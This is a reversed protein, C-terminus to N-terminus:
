DRLLARYGRQEFHRDHTLAEAIQRQDMVVFLACDTLSWNKDPRNQYLTLADRFLEPSQPVAEIEPDQIVARVLEAAKTRLYNGCEAFGNLVEVLVMETTVIRYEGFQEAIPTARAHLRDRSNAIAVWYGADAFVAQM